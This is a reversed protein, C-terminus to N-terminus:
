YILIGIVVSLYLILNAIYAFQILKEKHLFGYIIWPITFFVYASWSILSLGSVDKTLHVQLAQPLNALPWMAALILIIKDFIAKHNEPHPYDEFKKNARKRKSVHITVSGM